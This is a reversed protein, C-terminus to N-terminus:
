VSLDLSPVLNNRFPHAATLDERALVRHGQTSSSTGPEQEQQSISQDWGAEQQIMRGSVEASTSNPVGEWTGVWGENAKGAM